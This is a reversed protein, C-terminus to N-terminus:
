DISLCLLIMIWLPECIQLGSVWCALSEGSYGEIVYRPWFLTWCGVIHILRQAFDTCRYTTPSGTRGTRGWLIKNSAWVMWPVMWDARSDLPLWCWYWVFKGLLNHTILVLYLIGTFECATIRQCEHFFWFAATCNFVIVHNGVSSLNLAYVGVDSNTHPSSRPSVSSPPFSKSKGESM